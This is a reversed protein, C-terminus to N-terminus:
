CSWTPGGLMQYFDGGMGPKLEACNYYQCLNVYNLQSYLYLHYHVQENKGM